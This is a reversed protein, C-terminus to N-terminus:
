FTNLNFMCDLGYLYVNTQYYELGFNDLILICKIVM